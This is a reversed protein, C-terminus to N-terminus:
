DYKHRRRYDNMYRRATDIEKSPTKNSKKVFGHLLVFTGESRTFYFIRSIDNSFRIRLEWLGKNNDGKVAKVYPEKLSVGFDDLIEIQRLAKMRHNKPLEMLFDEVPITGSEKQYLIINKWKM